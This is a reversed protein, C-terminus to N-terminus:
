SNQPAPLFITATTGKGLQSAFELRGHHAAVISKCISLGLGYGGEEGRAVDVRFFREGLRALNEPAIGKGHDVVSLAVDSGVTSISLEIGPGGEASGHKVANDLLNAIARRLFEPDADVWVPQDGLSAQVRNDALSADIAEAAVVRLDLRQPQIRFTGADAQSLLLLQHVIKGMSEAAQDAVKLSELLAAKDGEQALGASTALRLRTLPTRLEHSADATFRRQEDYAAHLSVFSAQLRDIM